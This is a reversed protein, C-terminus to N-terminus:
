ITVDASTVACAARANVTQIIDLHRWSLALVDRRERRKRRENDGGIITTQNQRSRFAVDYDCWPALM